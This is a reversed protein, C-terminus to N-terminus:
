PGNPVGIQDHFSNEIEKVMVPTFSPIKPTIQKRVVINHYTRYAVGYGM